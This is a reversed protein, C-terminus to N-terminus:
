PNGARAVFRHAFRPSAARDAVRNARLLLIIVVAITTIFRRVNNAGRRTNMAGRVPHYYGAGGDCDPHIWNSLYIRKRATFRNQYLSAEHAFCILENAAYTKKVTSNELRWRFFLLILIYKLNTRYYYLTRHDFFVGTRITIWCRRLDRESQCSWCKKCAKLNFNGNNEFNKVPTSFLWNKSFWNIDTYFKKLYHTYIDLIM